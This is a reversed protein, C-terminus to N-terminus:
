WRPQSRNEKPMLIKCPKERNLKRKPACGPGTRRFKFRLGSVHPTRTRRNNRAQNAASRRRVSNAFYQLPAGAQQPPGCSRARRPVVPNSILEIQFRHPGKTGNDRKVQGKMRKETSANWCLSPSKNLVNRNRGECLPAEQCQRRIRHCRLASRWIPM